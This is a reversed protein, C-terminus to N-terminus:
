NWFGAPVSTLTEGEDSIVNTLFSLRCTEMALIMSSTNDYMACFCGHGVWKSETRRQAGSSENWLECTWLFEAFVSSSLGEWLNVFGAIWKYCAGWICIMAKKYFWTLCAVTIWHIVVTYWNKFFSPSFWSTHKFSNESALSKLRM